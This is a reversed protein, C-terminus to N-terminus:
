HGPVPTFHTAGTFAHIEMKFLCCLCVHHLAALEGRKKRREVSKQCKNPVSGLSHCQLQAPWNTLVFYYLYTMMITKIYLVNGGCCGM